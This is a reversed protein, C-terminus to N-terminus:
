GGAEDLLERAPRMRGAEADAMGELVAAITEERERKKRWMDLLEEPSHASTGVHLQEGLFLYFAQADNMAEVAM